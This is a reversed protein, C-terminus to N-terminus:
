LHFLQQQAECVEAGPSEGIVLQASATTSFHPDNFNHFLYDSIM